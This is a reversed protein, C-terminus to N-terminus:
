GLGHRGAVAECAGAGHPHRARSRLQRCAAVPCGCPLSSVFAQVCGVGRRLHRVGHHHAGCRCQRVCLLHAHCGPMVAVHAGRSRCARNICARVYMGWSVVRVLPTLGHQKAAEESAIVMAAAGDTIGSATGATVVGDKKFVTPLRGLSELTTAPRPGEDTDFM